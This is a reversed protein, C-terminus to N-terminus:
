PTSDAGAASSGTLEVVPRVDRLFGRMSLFDALHTRHDACALWVKRRDPAHLTPNNWELAYAAAARCGRASCILEDPESGKM